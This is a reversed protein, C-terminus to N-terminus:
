FFGHSGEDESLELLRPMGILSAADNIISNSSEWSISQSTKELSKNLSYILQLGATDIKQLDGAALRIDFGNSINEDILAKCSSVSRITLDAGLNIINSAGDLEVSQTTLPESSDFFGFGQDQEIDEVPKTVEAEAVDNFFGFGQDEVAENIADSPESEAPDNFFGFGQEEENSDHMDRTEIKTVEAQDIVAKKAVSKKVAAKKAVTAAEVSGTDETSEDDEGLWALPDYDLVSKSPKKNAM